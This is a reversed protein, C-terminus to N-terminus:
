VYVGFQDKEAVTGENAKTAQNCWPAKSRGVAFRSNSWKLYISGRFFISGATIYSILNCIFYYYEKDFRNSFVRM